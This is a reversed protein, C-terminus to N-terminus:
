QNIFYFGNIHTPWEEHPTNKQYLIEPFYLLATVVLCKLEKEYMFPM